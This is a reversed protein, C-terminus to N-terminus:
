AAKPGFLILRARPSLSTTMEAAFGRLTSFAAARDSSVTSLRILASDYVGMTLNCRIMALNQEWLTRPFQDGIRTWYLVHEERDPRTATWAVANCKVGAPGDVVVESPAGVAFGSGRYCQEPRHLQLGNREETDDYAVLMMVLAGDRQSYSGLRVNTYLQDSLENQPLILGDDGAYAYDGIKRPTVQSFQEATLSRNGGSRRGALSAAGTALMLGGLIAQRRDISLGPRAPGGGPMTDAPSTM